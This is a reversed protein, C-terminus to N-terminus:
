DFRHVTTRKGLKSAKRVTDMTGRSKGDWFAVLEDCEEAIRTNRMFGAAKGHTKWDAPFIVPEPLGRVVATKAAVGDIGRAGGSVVITGDPLSCVYEACAKMMREFRDWEERPADEKPPRSGVIAIKM